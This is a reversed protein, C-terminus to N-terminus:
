ATEDTGDAVVVVTDVDSSLKKEALIPDSDDGVKSSIM